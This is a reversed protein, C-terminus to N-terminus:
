NVHWLLYHNRLPYSCTAIPKHYHVFVILSFVVKNRLM